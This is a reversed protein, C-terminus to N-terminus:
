YSGYKAYKMTLITAIKRNFSCNYGSWRTTDFFLTSLLFSLAWFFHPCVSRFSIGIVLNPIVQDVLYILISTFFDCNSWWQLLQWLSSGGISNLNAFIWSASHTPLFLIDELLYKTFYVSSRIGALIDM